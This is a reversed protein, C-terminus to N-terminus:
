QQDTLCQPNKHCSNLRYCRCGQSAATLWRNWGVPIRVPFCGQVSVSVKVFAIPWNDEYLYAHLLLNCALVSVLPNGKSKFSLSIDRKLLSCVYQFLHFVGLIVYMWKTDVESGYRAVLAQCGMCCRLNNTKQHATNMFSWIVVYAITCVADMGFANCFVSTCFWFGFMCQSVMRYM